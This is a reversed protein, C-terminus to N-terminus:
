AGWSIYGAVNPIAAFSFPTAAQASFKWDGEQWVLEYVYSGVFATGKSSGEVAVDVRASKGDYSLVRFGAIRLRVGSSETGPAGASAIIAERYPGSAVFRDIWTALASPEAPPVLANAAAFLAGGPSRQFCYRIGNADTKGPGFTDSTPYATTGQYSWKASPATSLTGTMVAGPLGCVSRDATTATSTPSATSATPASSSAPSAAAGQNGKTMARVGLVAGLVLVLGVIVAASVFAPRTFPNQETDDTSM